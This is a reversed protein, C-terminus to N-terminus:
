AERLARQFTVDDVGLLKVVERRSRGLPRLRDWAARILRGRALMASKGRVRTLAFVFALPGGAANRVEVLVGLEDLEKETRLVREWCRRCCM